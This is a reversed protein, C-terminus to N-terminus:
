VRNWGEGVGRRRWRRRRRRHTGEGADVGHEELDVVLRLHEVEPFREM